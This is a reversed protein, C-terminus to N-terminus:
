PHLIKDALVTSMKYLAEHSYGAIHPTIVVNPRSGVRHMQAAFEVPMASLPEGPWVDLGAGRIKGSELGAELADPDVVEGRSTNILICPKQIAELAAYSFYNRTDTRLPVHFSVVDAANFIKTPDEVYQVSNALAPAPRAPDYALINVDFGALKRAFAQGTNGFGLIGVTRGELEIGRNEERLWHGALVERASWAIRKTVALLLGLTHEAVANRNGEPSAVVRIGRAAAHVTDIIELGSGMRGIWQLAPAADLLAADLRLRTSTVVGVCDAILSPAEEQRIGEAPRLTYGAAALREALVPHIPAAILVPGRSV